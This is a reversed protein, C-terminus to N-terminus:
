GGLHVINALAVLLGEDTFSGVKGVRVVGTGNLRHVLISDADAAYIVKGDSDTVTIRAGERTVRYM